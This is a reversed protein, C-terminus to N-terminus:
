LGGGEDEGGYASGPDIVGDRSRDYVVKGGVITYDVPLKVIENAPVAMYDGGLVVVDGLKGVQITGLKDQDGSYHAAWATRMRLADERSIAEKAGWMRGKEDTRTVLAQILWLSAGRYGAIDAEMVPKMGLSM